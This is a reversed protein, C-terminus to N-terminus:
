RFVLHRAPRLDTGSRVAPAPREVLLGLCMAFVGSIAATRLPFDVISHLLIAGSAISAARAYTGADVYCWSRWTARSWWGLFAIMLLIGPVGTELALEVYDNHAHIVYTNDVQAPDEYLHYVSAFSGVGSGWPLFDRMARASTSLMAERSQASSEVDSRFQGTRISTTTLVAVAGIVLVATALMWWRRWGSRRPVLLLASAALVPPTLGYVALSHNLAIGVVILLAAAAVGVLIASNRQRNGSLASGLLAALFPLTCALLDAMHNANAFFGTAFGFSSTEYVYWHSDAINGSQTVQLAGLLVGAIAGVIVAGALWSARYAGQSAIAIFLAVPPILALLCDLSRYPTLSLPVAPAGL